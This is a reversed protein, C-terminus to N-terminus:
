NLVMPVIKVNSAFAESKQKNIRRQFSDPWKGNLLKYSDNINKDQAKVTIKSLQFSNKM